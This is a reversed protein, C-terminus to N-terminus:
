GAAKASAGRRLRQQAWRASDFAGALLWLTLLGEAVVGPILIYPFADHVLWPYIFNVYTIGAIIMSIGLFKPMLKSRYILYGILLCHVGFPVLALEYVLNFFHASHASGFLDLAGFYELSGLTMVAVSILRFMLALMSLNRSVPKFLLYFILAVGTDCLLTVAMRPPSATAAGSPAAIFIILYLVGAIRALLGPSIAAPLGTVAAPISRSLTASSM